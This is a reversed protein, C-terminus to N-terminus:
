VFSFGLVFSKKTFKILTWLFYNETVNVINVVIIILSIINMIPSLKKKKYLYLRLQCGSGM